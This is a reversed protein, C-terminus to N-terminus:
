LKEWHSYAFTASFELITDSNDFGLDMPEVTTPWLNYLEYIGASNVSGDRKLQTVKATRFYDDLTGAGKADSNNIITSQWEDLATRIAHDEDHMITVTWDDFVPDGAVKIIHSLYKVEIPGVTKGPVQATKCHFKLKEEIGAIEIQYLNARAGASFNSIFDNVTTM